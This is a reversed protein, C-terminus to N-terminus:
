PESRAEVVRFPSLSGDTEVWRWKLGERSSKTLIDARAGVTFDTFDFDIQESLPGEMFVDRTRHPRRFSPYIRVARRGLAKDLGRCITSCTELAADNDISTSVSNLGKISRGLIKLLTENREDRLRELHDVTLYPNPISLWLQFARDRKVGQLGLEDFTRERERAFAKGGLQRAGRKVVDDAPLLRTGDRKGSRREEALTFCVHLLSPLPVAALQHLVKFPLHGKKVEASVFPVNVPMAALPDTNIRIETVWSARKQGRDGALLGTEAGWLKVWDDSCLVTVSRWYLPLALTTFGKSILLLHSTGVLPTIPAECTHPTALPLDGGLAFFM